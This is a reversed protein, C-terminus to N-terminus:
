HQPGPATPVLGPNSLQRRLVAIQSAAEEQKATQVQEFRAFVESAGHLELLEQAVRLAADRIFRGTPVGQHAAVADLLARDEERVRFSIPSSAEAM